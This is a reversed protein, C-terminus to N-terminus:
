KNEPGKDDPKESNKEPTGIGASIGILRQRITDGMGALVDSCADRLRKEALQALTEIVAQSHQGLTTASALLWSNSANELRSKFHDISEDTAHQVQEMWARQQNERQAQWNEVLPKLQAELNVSAREIGQTVREDLM